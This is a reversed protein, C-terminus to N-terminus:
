RPLNIRKIILFLHDALIVNIKWNTCLRATTFLLDAIPKSMAPVSVESFLLTNRLACNVKTVIHTHEFLRSTILTESPSSQM